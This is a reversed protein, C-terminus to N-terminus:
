FIILMTFLLGFAAAVSLKPFPKLLFRSACFSLAVASASVIFFKMIGPLGPVTVLFLQLAIVFLYHSLYINYSHAAMERNFANPRNWYRLALSSFFGLASITLFNLFLFYIPEYLERYKGPGPIMLYKTTLLVSLLLAFLVSWTKLHGPFKGGAIWKNRYSLIGMIFYIIFFFIRSPRFQIINFFSFLPESDSTEPGFAMILGFTGFSFFSTLSGVTIFLKLTRCVTPASKRVPTIERIFYRKRFHFIVAFIIFFLILLSLFWMYRQYFRNEIMLDNMSGIIGIHISLANKAIELWIEGYSQTRMFGNRTYHYILPLVPCITLICVLWPIGLRRLKASIFAGSGKKEMSPIAFYGSIFFLLPMTFSDFFASLFQVPLSPNGDIVPWWGPGRYAHCAHEMVVCLVFFCRLNDLFIIRLPPKNM